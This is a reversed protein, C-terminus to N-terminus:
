EFAAQLKPSDEPKCRIFAEYPKPNSYGLKEALKVSIQTQADWNPTLGKELAYEILAAGAVTALGKRRYEPSDYTEIEIEIMDSYPTFTSAMSVVKEGDKICFGFGHELFDESTGFFQLIHLGMTKDALNTISERDVRQLTFGNPLQEKLERIHEIDLTEASLSTRPLAFIDMGWASRVLDEWGKDPVNLLKMYPFEEIVYRAAESDSEGAVANMINFSWWGVKPDDTSDVYITGREHDIFGRIIARMSVSNFLDKARDKDPNTWEVIPSPM